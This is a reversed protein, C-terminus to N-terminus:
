GIRCLCLPNVYDLNMTLSEVEVVALEAEEDVDDGTTKNNWTRGAEALTSALLATRLVM